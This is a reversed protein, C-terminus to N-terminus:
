ISMQLNAGRPLITYNWDPHFQHGGIRQQDIQEDSIKVGTPYRQTDLLAKVRLGSRTRTAGMLNIVTELDALPQGKGTLRIFSFVRPEIRNWKRTGPPYHSV